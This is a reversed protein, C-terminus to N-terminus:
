IIGLNSPANEPSPKEVLNQIEILGDKENKPEVIGYNQVEEDPVNELCLVPSKTKEFVEMLQALAPKQHDIIDDGFLVAFPENGVINKACLIAHGDGLPKPQRVYIFEALDEIEQVKKLLEKKNKGALNYALEFNHDFHDEIARKGSGTVLIIQEIGSAVAEEVIYQIVPKDLIPLMEKPMAKTAPLFRTGLGGVPIVAKRIKNTM